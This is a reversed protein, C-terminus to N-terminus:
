GHEHQKTQQGTNDKKHTWISNLTQLMKRWIRLRAHFLPWPHSIKDHQRMQMLRRDQERQLLSIHDVDYVRVRPRDQQGDVREPPHRQSHADTQSVNQTSSTWSILLLYTDTMKWLSKKRSVKWQEGSLCLVCKFHTPTFPRSFFQGFKKLWYTHPCM